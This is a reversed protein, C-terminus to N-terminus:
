WGVDTELCVIGLWKYEIRRLLEPCLNGVERMCSATKRLLSTNGSSQADLTRFLSVAIMDSATEAFGLVMSISRVTSLM